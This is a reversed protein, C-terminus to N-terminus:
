VFAWHSLLEQPAPTPDVAPVHLVLRWVQWAAAWHSLPDHPPPTHVFPVPCAQWALVSQSAAFAQPRPTFPVQEVPVAV